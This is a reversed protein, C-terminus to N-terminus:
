FFFFAFSILTPPRPFSLTSSHSPFFRLFALKVYIPQRPYVGRKFVEECAFLAAKCNLTDFVTEILILHVGGELLKEIQEAYAEVLEDFALIFFFPLPFFSSCVCRINCCQSINRYEPREVSPSISATKNTPGVAGAVFRPKAPNKKTWENACAVALRAAELNM